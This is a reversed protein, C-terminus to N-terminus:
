LALYVILGASALPMACSTPLRSTPFHASMTSHRGANKPTLGLRTSFPPKMAAACIPSALALMGVGCGM